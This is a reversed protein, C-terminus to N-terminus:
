GMALERSEPSRKKGNGTLDSDWDHLSAHGLAAHGEVLKDDLELAKAAAARAKPIVESPPHQWDSSICYGDALGAYALAYGPDLAVARQFCAIGKEVAEGTFKNSYFRGQLYLEYAAQNETYHRALREREDGTLQLALANVVREALKDQLAFGDTLQEDFQEAWLSRGDPVSLLRVTVRIQEGLRQISGELASKVKLERGAIVPDTAQAVYRRVTSTPPVVVQPLGSLRTILVDAFGL